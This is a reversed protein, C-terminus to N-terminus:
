VYLTTLRVCRGGKVGGEGGFSFNTTRMETLAQFSGPVMTTDRVSGNMGNQGIIQLHSADTRLKNRPLQGHILHFTAPHDSAIQEVFTRLVRRKEL